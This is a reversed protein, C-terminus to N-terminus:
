PLNKVPPVYSEDGGHRKWQRYLWIWCAVTLIQFFLM